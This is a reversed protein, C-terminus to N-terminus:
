FLRHTWLGAKIDCEDNIYCAIRNWMRLQKFVSLVLRGRNLPSGKMYTSHRQCLWRERVRLHGWLHLKCSLFLSYRSSLRCSARHERTAFSSDQLHHRDQVTRGAM